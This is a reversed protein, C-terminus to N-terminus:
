AAQKTQKKSLFIIIEFSYKIYYIGFMKLYM